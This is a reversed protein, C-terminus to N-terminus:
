GPWSEEPISASAALCVCSGSFHALFQFSMAPRPGFRNIFSDDYIPEDASQARTRGIAANASDGKTHENLRVIEERRGM